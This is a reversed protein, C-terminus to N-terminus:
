RRRRSGAARRRSSPSGRAGTTRRPRRTRRWCSGGRRAAGAAARAVAHAARRTAAANRTASVFTSVAEANLHRPITIADGGGFAIADREYGAPAGANVRRAGAAPEWRDHRWACRARSAAFLARQSGASVVLDDYVYSVAVDDLPREEGLREVVGTRVLEGALPVGCLHSAAWAAAFDGLACDVGMGPLAVQGARRALSEHREHLEHLM